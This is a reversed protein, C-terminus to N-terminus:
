RLWRYLKNDGAQVVVLYVEGDHHLLHHSFAEIPFGGDERWDDEGPAWSWIESRLGGELLSGNTIGGFVVFRGDRGIASGYMLPRPLPPGAVWAPSPGDLDLLYVDDEAVGYSTFETDEPVAERGGGAVMLTGDVLAVYPFQVEMPVPPHYDWVEDGLVFEQVAGTPTFGGGANGGALICRGEDRAIGPAHIPYDHPGGELWAQQDLDALEWHYDAWPAFLGNGGGALFYLRPGDQCTVGQEHDGDPWGSWEQLEHTADALSWRHHQTVLFGDRIAAWEVAGYADDMDLVGILEWSDPDVPVDPHHDTTDDDGAGDDDGSAFDDDGSPCGGVALVFLLVPFLPRVAHLIDGRRSGM